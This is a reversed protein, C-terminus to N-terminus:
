PATRLEEIARVIQDLMPRADTYVLDIHRVDKNSVVALSPYSHIGLSRAARIEDTLCQHVTTSDLDAEFQGLKLGIGKALAILTEKDSPNQAKCYYAQQIAATMLEDFHEGQRRAAIVARCSPYTSRRPTCQQWFDYNFVTGPIDREIRRWTAQLSEQLHQPMTQDTDPALGGLLRKIPVTGILNEIITALTEDFGFCWSCMPDHVYVLIPNM